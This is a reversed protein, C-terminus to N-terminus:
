QGNADDPQWHPQKFAARMRARRADVQEPTLEATQQAIALLKPLAVSAAEVGALIADFLALYGM